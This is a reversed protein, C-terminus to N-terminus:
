IEMESSSGSSGPFHFSAAWPRLVLGEMKRRGRFNRKKRWQRKQDRLGSIYGNSDDGGEDGKRYGFTVLYSKIKSGLDRLEM